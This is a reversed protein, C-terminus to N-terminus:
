LTAEYYSGDVKKGWARVLQDGNYDIKVYWTGAATVGSYLYDFPAVLDSPIVHITFDHRFPQGNCGVGYRSLICGVLDDIDTVVYADPYGNECSIKEFKSITGAWVTCFTVLTLLVVVILKKM